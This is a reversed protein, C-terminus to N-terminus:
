CPSVLLACPDSSSSAASTWSVIWVCKRVAQSAQRREEASQPPCELTVPKSSGAGAAFGLFATVAARFKPLSGPLLLHWTGTYKALHALLFLARELEFLSALTLPQTSDAAPPLCALLLRGELM